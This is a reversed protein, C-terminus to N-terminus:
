GNFAQCQQPKYFHNENHDPIFWKNRTDSLNQLFESWIYWKSM